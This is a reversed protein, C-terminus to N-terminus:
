TINSCWINDIYFCIRVVKTKGSFSPSSLPSSLRKAAALPRAEIRVAAFRYLLFPLNFFTMKGGCTASPRRIQCTPFFIGPLSTGSLREPGHERKKRKVAYDFALMSKVLNDLLDVKKRLFTNFLNAPTLVIINIIERGTKLFWLKMKLSPRVGLCCDM